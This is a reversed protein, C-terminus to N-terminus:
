FLLYSVKELLLEFRKKVDKNSLLYEKTSSFEKKRPKGLSYDLIIGKYQSATLDIVEGDIINYYHSEEKGKYMVNLQFIDGDLYNELVLASLISQGRAPNAESWDDPNQATEKDWAQKIIHILSM